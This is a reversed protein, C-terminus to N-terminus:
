CPGLCTIRPCTVALTKAGGGTLLGPNGLLQLSLKHLRLKKIQNKKM